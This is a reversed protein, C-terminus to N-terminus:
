DLVIFTGENNEDESRNRHGFSFAVKIRIITSCKSCTESGAQGTFDIHHCDIQLLEIRKSGSKNTKNLQSFGLLAFLKGM